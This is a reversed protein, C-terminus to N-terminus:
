PGERVGWRGLPGSRLGEGLRAQVWRAPKARRLGTTNVTRAPSTGEVQAWRRPWLGDGTVALCLATDEGSDERDWAKGRSSGQRLRWPLEPIFGRKPELM